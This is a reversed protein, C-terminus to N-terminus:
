YYDKLRQEQVPRPKEFYKTYIVVETRSPRKVTWISLRPPAKFFNHAESSTVTKEQLVM